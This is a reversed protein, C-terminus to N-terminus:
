KLLYTKLKQTETLGGVGVFCSVFTTAIYLPPILPRPNTRTTSNPSPRIGVPGRRTKIQTFSKNSGENWWICMGADEIDLVESLATNKSIKWLASLCKLLM